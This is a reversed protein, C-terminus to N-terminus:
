KLDAWFAGPYITDNFYYNWTGNIRTKTINGEYEHGEEKVYFYGFDDIIVNYVRPLTISSRTIMSMTKGYIDIIITADFVESTIKGEYHGTYDIIPEPMQEQKSCSIFSIAIMIALLLNKINKM